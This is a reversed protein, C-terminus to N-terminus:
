QMPGIVPRVNEAISVRAAARSAANWRTYPGLKVVYWERGRPDSVHTMVPHYGMDKLSQVLGEANEKMAFSGVKVALPIAYSAEAAHAASAAPAPQPKAQASAESAPALTAVTETPSAATATATAPAAQQAKVAVVPPPSSAPSSTPTSAIPASAQASGSAAAPSPTTSTAAAPASAAVPKAKAMAPAQPGRAVAARGGSYLMGSISGAFFLLIAAALFCGALILVRTRDLSFNYPASM